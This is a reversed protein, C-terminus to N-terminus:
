ISNLVKCPKINYFFNHNHNRIAPGEAENWLRHLGIVPNFKEDYGSVTTPLLRPVKGALVKLCPNPTLTRIIEVCAPHPHYDFTWVKIAFDALMYGEETTDHDQDFGVSRLYSALNACAGSYVLRGGTQLLLIDRFELRIITTPAQMHVNHNTAALTTTKGAFTAPGPSHVVVVVTM